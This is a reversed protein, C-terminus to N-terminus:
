ERFYCPKNGLGPEKHWGFLTEGRGVRERLASKTGEFGEKVALEYAEALSYYERDSKAEFRDIPEEEDIVFDEQLEETIVEAVIPNNPMVIPESSNVVVDKSAKEAPAIPMGHLREELEILTKSYDLAQGLLEMMSGTEITTPEPQLLIQKQLWSIIQKQLSLVESQELSNSM